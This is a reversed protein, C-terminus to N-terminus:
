RRIVAIDTFEGLRQAPKTRWLIDVRKSRIAEQRRPQYDTKKSVRVGFITGGVAARELYRFSIVIKEPFEM